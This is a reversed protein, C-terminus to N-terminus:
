KMNNNIVVNNDLFNMNASTVIFTTMIGASSSSSASLEELYLKKLIPNLWRGYLHVASTCALGFGGRAGGEKCVACGLLTKVLRDSAKNLFRGAKKVGLDPDKISKEQDRSSPDRIEM